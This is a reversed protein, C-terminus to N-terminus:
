MTVTNQLTCEFKNADSQNNFVLGSNSTVDLIKMDGTLYISKFFVIYDMINAQSLM